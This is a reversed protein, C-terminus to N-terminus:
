PLLGLERARRLAETRRRAGLKEYLRALHTKVTNPSVHLREAIEKNSLGAAIEGLVAAERPSIGLEALARPNGDFAAAATRRGFLRVGVLVGLALFAAALLFDYIEGAHVRAMRQYDLWQLGLTGLALLLGYLAAQKWMFFPQIHSAQM